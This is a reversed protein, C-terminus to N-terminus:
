CSYWGLGGFPTSSWFTIGNNKVLKYKTSNSFVIFLVVENTPGGFVLGFWLLCPSKFYLHLFAWHFALPGFLKIPLLTLCHKAVLSHSFCLCAVIGGGFLWGRLLFPFVFFFFFFAFPWCVSCCVRIVLAPPVLVFVSKEEGRAAMAVAGRGEAGGSGRESAGRWAEAMALLSTVKMMILGSPTWRPRTLGEREKSERGRGGTPNKAKRAEDHWM